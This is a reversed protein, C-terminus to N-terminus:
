SGNYKEGGKAYRYDPKNEQKAIREMDKEVKLEEEIIMLVYELGKIEGRMDPWEAKILKSVLTDRKQNIQVQLKILPHVEIVGSESM